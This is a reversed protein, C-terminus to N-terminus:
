PNQQQQRQQMRQQMMMKPDFKVPTGTIRTKADTIIKALVMTRGDEVSKVLGM